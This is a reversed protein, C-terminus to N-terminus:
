RRGELQLVGGLELPAVGALAKLSALLATGAPDDGVASLLSTSVGLRALGEAVNRGVGGEKQQVSGPTSTKQELHLGKQPAAIVDMVAGGVVLVTPPASPTTSSTATSTCFPRPRTPATTTTPKSSGSSSSSRQHQQGRALAVAIQAGVKANHKILGINARYSLPFLPTLMCPHISSFSIADLTGACMCVCVCVNMCVYCTGYLWVCCGLAWRM